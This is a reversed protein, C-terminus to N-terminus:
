PSSRWGSVVMATYFLVAFAAGVAIGRSKGSSALIVLVLTFAGWVALYQRHDHPDFAQLQQM